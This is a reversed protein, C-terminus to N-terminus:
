DPAIGFCHGGSESKHPIGSLINGRSPERKIWQRASSRSGRICTASTINMDRHGALYALTWPDM